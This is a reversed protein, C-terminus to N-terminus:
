DGRGFGNDILYVGNGNMHKSVNNGDYKTLLEIEEPIDPIAQPNEKQMSKCGKCDEKKFGPMCDAAAITGNYVQCFIDAKKKGNYAGTKTGPKRKPIGAAEKLQNLKIHKKKLGRLKFKIEAIKDYEAANPSYGLQLYIKRMHEAAEKLYTKNIKETMKAGEIM